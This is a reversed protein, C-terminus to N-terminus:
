VELQEFVTRNKEVDPHIDVTHATDKFYIRYSPDLKTLTLYNSVSKGFDNFFEEFVDPM